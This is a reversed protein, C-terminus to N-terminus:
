YSKNERPLHETGLCDLKNNDICQSSDLLSVEMHILQHRNSEYRSAEVQHVEYSNPGLAGKYVGATWTSQGLSGLQVTEGPALPKLPHPHRSYCFQQLRKQAQLAYTGEETAYKPILLSGAM